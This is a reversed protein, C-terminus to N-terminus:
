RVEDFSSSKKAGSISETEKKSSLIGKWPHTKMYIVILLLDVLGGSIIITPLIWSLKTALWYANEEEPFVGIAALLLEHRNRVNAATYSVTM